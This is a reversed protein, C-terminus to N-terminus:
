CITALLANAQGINLGFLKILAYPALYQGPSWWSLFAPNNKAINAMNPGPLMNFGGGMQMGRMVQFGWSPDPFAAAPHILTLLGIVVTAIGTLALVIQHYKSNITM